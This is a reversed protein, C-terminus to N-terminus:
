AELVETCGWIQCYASQSFAATITHYVPMVAILMGLVLHLGLKGILDEHHFPWRLSLKDGTAVLLWLAFLVPGYAVFAATSCPHHTLRVGAIRLDAILLLWVAFVLATFAMYTYFHAPVKNIFGSVSAKTAETPSAAGEHAVRAPEPGLNSHIPDRLEADPETPGLSAKFTGFLNDLPLSASGYNCWFKAHHVYHFQDSQVHDEWGSHSAAPSLLLHMGNFLLHFPSMYFYLSPMICSFYYLHEIPHMTLGAFPEIDVNRHHLSHVFKYLFRVHILRHAFYFHCGRWIPILATWGLFRALNAPSHFIESDHLYPLNGSAYAHMFMVEFLTWVGCGLTFYWLNHAMNAASPWCEMRFKRKGWNLTYLTAEFYAYYAFTITFNIGARSLIWHHSWEQAAELDYPFVIYVFVTITLWILNPSFVIHKLQVVGM